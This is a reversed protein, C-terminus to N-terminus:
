FTLFNNDRKQLPNGEAFIGTATYFSGPVFQKNIKSSSFIRFKTNAFQKWFNKGSLFIHSHLSPSCTQIKDMNHPSTTPPVCLFYTSQCAFLILLCLAYAKEIAYTYGMGCHSGCNLGDCLHFCQGSNHCNYHM